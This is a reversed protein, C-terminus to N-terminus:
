SQDLKSWQCFDNFVRDVSINKQWYKRSLSYPFAAKIVRGNSWGARWRPLSRWRGFIQYTPVGLCSALHANGSDNGIFWSADNYFIALSAIDKFEPAEFQGGIIDRWVDLEAPSVTFVPQLGIDELKKALTLYKNATWNKRTSSSTPHILVKQSNKPVQPINIGNLNSVNELGIVNELYGCIQGTIPKRRASLSFERISNNFLILREADGKLSSPLRSKIIEAKVDMHDFKGSVMKYAIANYKLWARDEENMSRIYPAGFDYLSVHYQEAEHVVSSPIPRPKVTYNDVYDKLQYAFDSYFTVRYGNLALNNAIIMQLLADGLGQSCFIAISANM